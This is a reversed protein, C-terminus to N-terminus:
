TADTEYNEGNLPAMEILNHILDKSPDEVIENIEKERIIYALPIESRGPVHKLFNRFTESWDQWDSKHTFTAPKAADTITKAKDKFKKLEKSKELIANAHIVPFPQDNPDQGVRYLGIAWQLLAHLRKKVLPNLVIRGGAITLNSYSKFNENLEEKTLNKCTTFDDEFIESAVRQAPGQGMFAPVDPVGCARVADLVHNPPPPLAM